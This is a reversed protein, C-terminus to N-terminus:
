DSLALLGLDFFNTLSLVRTTFITLGSISGSSNYFSAQTMRKNMASEATAIASGFPVGVVAAGAAVGSKFTTRM